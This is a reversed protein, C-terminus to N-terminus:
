LYLYRLSISRCLSLHFSISFSPFLPGKDREEATSITLAKHAYGRTLLSSRRPREEDDAMTHFRAFRVSPLHNFHPPFLPAFAISCLSSSLAEWQLLGSYSIRMRVTTITNIARGSSGSTSPPFLFVLSNIFSVDTKKKGKNM